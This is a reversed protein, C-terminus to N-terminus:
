IIRGEKRKTTNERRGNIVGRENEYRRGNTCHCVGRNIACVCLYIYICVRVVQGTRKKKSGGRASCEKRMCIGWM